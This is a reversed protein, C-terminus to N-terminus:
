TFTNIPNKRRRAIINTTLFRGHEEMNMLISEFGADTIMKVVAFISYSNMQMIPENAPRRNCMNIIINVISIKKKLFDTFKSLLGGRQGICVHISILGNEAVKELLNSMITMGRAVPIHQFVIYSNVFQYKGKAESINDDSKVFRINSQGAEIANRRAEVLMSSSIDVGVVERFRKALPITLRGVGCGFDLARERDVPMFVQDAKQLLDEVHQEGSNFFSGLNVELAQRRYRPDSLVGFYPDMDGWKAWAVDTNM